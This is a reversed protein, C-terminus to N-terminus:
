LELEKTHTGIHLVIKLPVYITVPVKSLCLNSSTVIICMESIPDAKGMEVLEVM